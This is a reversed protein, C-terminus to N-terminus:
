AVALLRQIAKSYVDVAQLNGLDVATHLKSYLTDMLDTFNDCCECEDTDELNDEYDDEELSAGVSTVQTIIDQLTEGKFTMTEGNSGTTVIVEFM